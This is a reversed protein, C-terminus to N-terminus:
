QAKILYGQEDFYVMDGGHVRVISGDLKNLEIGDGKSVIMCSNLSSNLHFSIPEFCQFRNKQHKLKIFSSYGAFEAFTLRGFYDIVVKDNKEVNFTVDAINFIKPESIYYTSASLTGSSFLLIGYLPIQNGLYEHLYPTNTFIQRVLFPTHSFELHGIFELKQGNVMAYSKLRGNIDCGFVSELAGYTNFLMVSCINADVIVEGHEDELYFKQSRMTSLVLRSIGSGFQEEFFNIEEVLLINGSIEVNQPVLLEGGIWM